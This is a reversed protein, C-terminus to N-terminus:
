FLSKPVVIIDGPELLFNTAEKDTGGNAAIAKKYNFSLRQVTNGQHRLVTIRSLEAFPFKGVGGVEALFDLITMRGRLVYRGGATDALVSVKPSRIETVIVSVEPNPIYEELRMALIDRLQMPTRGAALVDNLLPLSIMGDPRVQVTRSIEQNKWVVIELVDEAGIQFQYEEQRHGNSQALAPRTMVMVLVALM